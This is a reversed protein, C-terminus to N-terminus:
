LTYVVYLSINKNSTKESEESIDALGLGYAVGVGINSNVDYGVGLNLGFDLSNTVDKFDESVGNSEGKATLLLGLYPGGEVFFGSGSGGINYKLNIPIELYNFNFTAKISQGFFEIEQKSGKMSFLIGPRVVLANSISVGYVAGFNFGLKSKLGSGEASESSFNSLNLGGRIGFQANVATFTGAVILLSFLLKKM